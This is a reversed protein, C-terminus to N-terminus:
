RRVGKLSGFKTETELIKLEYWDSDDGRPEYLLTIPFETRGRMEAESFGAVRSYVAECSITDGQRVPAGLSVMSRRRGDFMSFEFDCIEEERSDRLVLYFATMPDITGGQELHDVETEVRAAPPSYSVDVPVGDEYSIIVESVRSGTNASETYRVPEFGRGRLWGQATAVYKVDRYKRLLKVLSNPQLVASAGYSSQNARAAMSMTGVRIGIVMVDFVVKDERLKSISEGQDSAHAPVLLLVALLATIFNLRHM